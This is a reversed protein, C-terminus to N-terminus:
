SFSTLKESHKAWTDNRLKWSNTWLQVVRQILQFQVSFYHFILLINLKGGPMKFEDFNLKIEDIKLTILWYISYCISNVVDNEMLDDSRSERNENIPESLLDINFENNNVHWKLHWEVHFKQCVRIYLVYWCTEEKAQTYPPRNYYFTAM